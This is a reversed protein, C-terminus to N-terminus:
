WLVGSCWRFRLVVCSWAGQEAGETVVGVRRNTGRASTTVPHTSPLRESVGTRTGDRVDARADGEESALQGRRRTEWRVKLKVWSDNKKKLCGTSM